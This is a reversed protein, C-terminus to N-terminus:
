TCVVLNCKEEETEEGEDKSWNWIFKWNTESPTEKPIKKQTLKNIGKKVPYNQEVELNWDKLTEDFKSYSSLLRYVM